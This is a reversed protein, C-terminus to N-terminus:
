MPHEFCRNQCLSANYNRTFGPINLKYFFIDTIKKVSIVCVREHWLAFGATASSCLWMKMEALTRLALLSMVVDEDEHTNVFGCCHLFLTSFRNCKSSTKTRRSVKKEILKSNKPCVWSRHYRLECLSKQGLVAAAWDLTNFYLLSAFLITLFWQTKVIKCNKEESKKL